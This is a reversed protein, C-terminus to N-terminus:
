RNVVSKAVRYVASEARAGTEVGVAMTVVKGAFIGLVKTLGVATVVVEYDAKSHVVGEAIGNIAGEAGSGTEVGVALTVVMCAFVGLVETLGVAAVIIKDDAKRHVVGEAISDVASDAGSGTEVGVALAVVERAFVGLVETLWVAAVVIENDAEHHVVGQAVGNVAGEAGSGTEVSAALTVVESAFVGLVQTLGVAAVVIKDDTQRNVVGEAIRYIAGDASSCTKVRVAM